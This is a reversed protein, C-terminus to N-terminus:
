RTMELLSEQTDWTDFEGRELYGTSQVFWKKTAPLRIDSLRYLASRHKRCVVEDFFYCTSVVRNPCNCNRCFACRRKSKTPKYAKLLEVDSSFVHQKSM